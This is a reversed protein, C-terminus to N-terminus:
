LSSPGELVHGGKMVATRFAPPFCRCALLLFLWPRLTGAKQVSVLNRNATAAPASTAKPASVAAPVPLAAALLMSPTATSVRPVPAHLRPVMVEQAFIALQVLSVRQLHAIRAVRYVAKSPIFGKLVAVLVLLVRAASATIVMFAPFVRELQGLVCSLDLIVQFIDLAALAHIARSQVEGM